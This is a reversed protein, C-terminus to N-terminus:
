LRHLNQHSTSFEVIRALGICTRRWAFVVFWTGANKCMCACACVYVCVDVCLCVSLYVYM